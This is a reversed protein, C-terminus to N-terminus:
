LLKSIRQRIMDMDVSLEGPGGEPAAVPQLLTAVDLKFFLGQVSTELDASCVMSGPQMKWTNEIVGNKMDRLAHGAWWTTREPPSRKFLKVGM